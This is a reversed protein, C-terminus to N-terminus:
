RGHSQTKRPRHQEYHNEKEPFKLSHANVCNPKCAREEGGDYVKFKLAGELDNATKEVSRIKDQAVCGKLTILINQHSDDINSILVDPHISEIHQQIQNITVPIGSFNNPIYLDDIPELQYLYDRPAVKTLEIPTIIFRIKQDFEKSIEEFNDVENLLHLHYKSENLKYLNTHFYPFKARFNLDIRRCWGDFNFSKKNDMFYTGAM